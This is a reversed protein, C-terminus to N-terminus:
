FDGQVKSKDKLEEEKTNREVFAPAFSNQIIYQLMGCFPQDIPNLRLVKLDLCLSECSRKNTTVYVVHHFNEPFDGEGPWM